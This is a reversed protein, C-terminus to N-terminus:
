RRHGFSGKKRRRGAAQGLRKRAFSGDGMRVAKENEFADSIWAVFLPAKEEFLQHAAAWQKTETHRLYHLVGVAFERGDDDTVNRPFSEEIQWLPSPVPTLGSPVETTSLTNSKGGIEEASVSVVFLTSVTLLVVAIFKDFM